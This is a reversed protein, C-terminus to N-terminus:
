LIAGMSNFMDGGMGQFMGGGLSSGVQGGGGNFLGMLGQAGSKMMPYMSGQMAGGQGLLGPRNAGMQPPVLGMGLPSAAGQRPVAKLQPAMPTVNQPPRMQMQMQMLAALILPNMQPQQSQQPSYAM